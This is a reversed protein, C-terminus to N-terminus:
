TIIYHMRICQRTSNGLKNVMWLVNGMRQYTITKLYPANSMMLHSNLLCQMKLINYNTHTWKIIPGNQVLNLHWVGFPLCRICVAYCLDSTCHLQTPWSNLIVSFRFNILTIYPNHRHHYRTIDLSLVFAVNLSLARTHASTRKIAHCKYTLLMRQIWGKSAIKPNQVMLQKFVNSLLCYRSGVASEICIVTRLACQETHMCFACEVCYYIIIVDREYRYNCIEGCLIAVYIRHLFILWLRILQIRVLFDTQCRHLSAADFVLISRYSNIRDICQITNQIKNHKNLARAHFLFVLLLVMLMLLFLLMLTETLLMANLYM